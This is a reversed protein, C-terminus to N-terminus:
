YIDNPEKILNYRDSRIIRIVINLYDIINNLVVDVLLPSYGSLIIRNDYSSVMRLYGSINWYTVKINDHLVFNIVSREYYLDTFICIYKINQSEAISIVKEINVKNSWPINKMYNVQIYLTGDPIHYLEPFETFTILKNNNLLLLTMTISVVMPIGYMSGSVDCVPLTENNSYKNKITNWKKEISDDEINGSLYYCVPYFINDEDFLRSYYNEKNKLLFENFKKEDKRIFIPKYKKIATISVTTYDVPLRKCLKTEVLNLRKRLPSIVVKRLMMIHTSNINKNNYLKKCLEIIFRPQSFRDWKSNETPIWKALLSIEENDPTRVDKDLTDIIYQLIMNKSKINVFHWLKILDLWTGYEPIIKFNAQFWSPYISEIYILASLPGDNDRKGCFSDRWNMIIKFTDLPNILWSEDILKYLQNTGYLTECKCNIVEMFLVCRKDM